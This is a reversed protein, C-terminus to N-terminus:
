RSVGSIVGGNSVRAGFTSGGHEGSKHQGTRQGVVEKDQDRIARMLEGSKNQWAPRGINHALGFWICRLEDESYREVPLGRLKVIGLGSELEDAVGDLVETAATLPFEAATVESRFRTTYPFLTDTRTSRPPRRMM